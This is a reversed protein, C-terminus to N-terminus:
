CGLSKQFRIAESFYSSLPTSLFILATHHFIAPAEEAFDIKLMLLFFYIVQLHDDTPLM